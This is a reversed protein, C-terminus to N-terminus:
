ARKTREISPRHEIEFIIQSAKNVADYTTMHERGSYIIAAVIALLDRDNV